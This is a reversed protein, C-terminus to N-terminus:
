QAALRELLDREEAIEPWAPQPPAFRRAGVDRDPFDQEAALRFDDRDPDTFKVQGAGNGSPLPVDEYRTKPNKGALWRVVPTGITDFVNNSIAAGPVKGPPQAVGHEYRSLVNRHVTPEAAGSISIAAENTWAAKPRPRLNLFTNHEIVDRNRGMAGISCGLFLNDRITARTKGDAYIAGRNINFFANGMLTPSADDYRIGHFEAGSIRCNEVVVEGPGKIQAGAYGCNRIECDSIRVRGKSSAEVVFGSGRIGAVLCRQFTVKSEGKVQLGEVPSGAFACDEVSVGSNEILLM